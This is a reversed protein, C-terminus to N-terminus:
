RVRARKFFHLAPVFKVMHRVEAASLTTDTSEGYHTQGMILINGVLAAPYWQVATLIDDDKVKMLGNDDVWAMNADTVWGGQCFTECGILRHMDEISDNIQVEEVTGDKPKIIIAKM